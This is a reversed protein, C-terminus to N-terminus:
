LNGKRERGRKVGGECGSGRRVFQGERRAQMLKDQLRMLEGHRLEMRHIEKRMEGVVDQGVSPDLVDHMEKELIIKREWLMIQREVEVVEALTDRKSAREMDILSAIHAAEEELDRLDSVIKHELNFNDEKLAERASSNQGILKNIRQLEIGLRELGVQM